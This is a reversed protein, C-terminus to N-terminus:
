LKKVLIPLSVQHPLDRGTWYASTIHTLNSESFGTHNVLHMVLIHNSSTLLANKTLNLIMHTVQKSNYILTDLQHSLAAQIAPSYCVSPGQEMLLENYTLIPPSTLVPVLHNIVLCYKYLYLPRMSIAYCNLCHSSFAYM